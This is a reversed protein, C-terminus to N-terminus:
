PIFQTHALTWTHWAAVCCALGVMLVNQPLAMYSDKPLGVAGEKCKKLDTDPLLHSLSANQSPEPKTEKDPPPPPLIEASMAAQM